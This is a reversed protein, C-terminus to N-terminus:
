PRVPQLARRGLAAYPLAPAPDALHSLPSSALPTFPSRGARAPSLNRADMGLPHRYLDARAAASGVRAGVLLQRGEDDLRQPAHVPSMNTWRQMAPGGRASRFSRIGTKLLADVLKGLHM